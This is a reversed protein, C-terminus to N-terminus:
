LMGKQKKYWEITRKLGEDFTENASWGLAKLKSNDM